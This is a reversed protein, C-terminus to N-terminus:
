RYWRGPSKGRVMLVSREGVNTRRYAGPAAIEETHFSAPYPPVQAVAPSALMLAAAAILTRFM